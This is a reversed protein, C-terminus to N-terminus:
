EEVALLGHLLALSKKFNATDKNESFISVSKQANEKALDQNGALGHSIALFYYLEGQEPAIRTGASFSDIARDFDNLRMYTQGLIIYGQPDTPNEKIAADFSKIAEIPNAEKLFVYGQDLKNQFLTERNSEAAQVVPEPSSLPPSPEKTQPSGCSSFLCCGIILAIIDKM